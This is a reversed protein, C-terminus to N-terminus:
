RTLYALQRGIGLGAMPISVTHGADLLLPELYQRYNIGALIIYDHWRDQPLQAFVKSAWFKREQTSMDNLTMDYPPTLADLALAGYKASLIFTTDAADQAYALAKKFWPSVYLEAAPAPYPLKMSACSVLAIKM